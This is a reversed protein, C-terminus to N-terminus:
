LRKLGLRKMTISKSSNKANAGVGKTKNINQVAKDGAHKKFPQGSSTESLGRGEEQTLSKSSCADNNECRRENDQQKDSKAAHIETMMKARRCYDDYQELLM